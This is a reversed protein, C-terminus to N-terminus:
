SDLLEAKKREFEDQTLLGASLLDGLKRIEEATGSPGLSIPMIGPQGKNMARIAKGAALGGKVTLASLSVFGAVMMTGGGFIMLTGPIAGVVTFCLFIGALFLATGMVLKGM